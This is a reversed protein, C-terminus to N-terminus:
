CAAAINYSKGANASSYGLRHNVSHHSVSHKEVQGYLDALAVNDEPPFWADDLPCIDMNNQGERITEAERGVDTGLLDFAITSVFSQRSQIRELTLADASTLRHHNAVTACQSSCPQANDSRHQSSCSQSDIEMTTTMGM